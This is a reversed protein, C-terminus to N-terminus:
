TPRDPAPPSIGGQQGGGVGIDGRREYREDTTLLWAAAIDPASVM